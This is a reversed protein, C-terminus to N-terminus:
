RRDLIDPRLKESNKNKRYGLQKNMIWCVFGWYAWQLWYGLRNKGSHLFQYWSDKCSYINPHWKSSYRSGIFKDTSVGFLHSPKLVPAGSGTRRIIWDVHKGLDVCTSVIDLASKGGGYVTIRKIVSSELFDHKLGLEQSHFTPCKFEDNPLVPINPQSTLGTALILKDCFLLSGEDSGVAKVWVNWGSSDKARSIKYAESNLRVRDLLKFKEAYAQMYVFLREAPIFDDKPTGDPDLPLDSYELVGFPQQATLKPYIRGRSWPGGITSEKEIITLDITPDVQLYRCECETLDLRWTFDHHM